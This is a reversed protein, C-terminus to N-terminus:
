LALRIATMEEIISDWTGNEIAAQRVLQFQKNIKQARLQAKSQGSKAFTKNGRETFYGRNLYDYIIPNLKVDPYVGIANPGDPNKKHLEEVLDILFTDERWKHPCGPQHELQIEGSGLYAMRGGHCEDCVVNLLGTPM